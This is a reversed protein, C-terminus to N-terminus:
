KHQAWQGSLGAKQMIQTYYDEMTFHYVVLM